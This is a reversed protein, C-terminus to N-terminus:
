DSVCGTEDTDESMEGEHPVGDGAECASVAGTSAVAM